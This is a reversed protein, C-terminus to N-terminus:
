LISEFVGLKTLDKTIIGAHFPLAEMVARIHKCGGGALKPNRITPFRDEKTGYNYGSISAKYKHGWYLWSPEENGDPDNCSVKVRGQLAMRVIELPKKRAVWKDRIKKFDALEVKQIWYLGPTTGSPTMFTVVFNKDVGQYYTFIQAKARKVIAPTQKSYSLLDKYGEDFVGNFHSYTKQSKFIM